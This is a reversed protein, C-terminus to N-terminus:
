GKFNQLGELDLITLGVRQVRVLGKTELSKLAENTRQRSLGSLEAIEEQSIVLASEIGPSLLPNYLAALSLAVRANPELLRDRQALGVFQRLRENLQDIIFRAFTINRDLLAMFTARPMFALESERLVVGDYGRPGRRIVTGEGFWAGTGVAVFSTAQGEASVITMKALGDVVGIWHESADGARFVTGGKPYVRSTTEREVRSKEEPTLGRAWVAQALAQALKSM